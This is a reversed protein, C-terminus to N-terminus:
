EATFHKRREEAVAIYKKLVQKLAFCYPDLRVSAGNEIAREAAEIGRLRIRAQRLSLRCTKGLVGDIEARRLAELNRHDLKLKQITTRAAMDADDAPFIEGRPNFRFRKECGASLPSVFHAQESPPPWDEKPHAGYEGRPGNPQPWCAVLNDYAVDQGRQCHTQAVLHEVHTTNRSIRRGTYACLGGQENLLCETLEEVLEKSQRLLDYGFNIGEGRPDAQNAARWEALSTPEARKKIKRM